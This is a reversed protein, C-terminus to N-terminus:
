LLAKILDVTKATAGRNDYIIKKARVGMERASLPDNLMFAIDKKLEQPGNVMIAANNRIFLEAIDRFNFMHPGFIVPKALYAPEM